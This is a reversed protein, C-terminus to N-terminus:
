NQGGNSAGLLTISKILNFNSDFKQFRNTTIGAIFIYNNITAMYGDVNAYSKTTLYNWKSDYTTFGGNDNVVYFM